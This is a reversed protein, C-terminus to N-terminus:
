DGESQEEPRVGWSAPPKLLDPVLTTEDGVARELQKQTLNIANGLDTGELRTGSFQADEFDAREPRVEMLDAGELYASRFDAGELDARRLNAEDLWAHELRAESLDVEALNARHLLAMRLDTRRLNAGSLIADRLNAGRLVTGELEAGELHVGRLDAGSLDTLRLDLPEPEGHGYHRTRRRLITLIAQIDPAPLEDYTPTTSEEAPGGDEELRRPARQRVYTALIEMIPWHDVESERSIRELAYIAGLRNEVKESGLQDIAQTLLRTIQQEQALERDLQLRERDLQQARASNLREMQTLLLSGLALIIPVILLKMWDWLTRGLFGTWVWKYTYGGIAILTIAVVLGIFVGVPVAYPLTAIVTWLLSARRRERSWV